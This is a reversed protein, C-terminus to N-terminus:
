IPMLAGGKACGSDQLPTSDFANHWYRRADRRHMLPIELERGPTFRLSLAGTEVTNFVRACVGLYKRVIEQEPLGFRNRYGSTVVAVEPSTAAVFEDTSSTLSGHHPVLVVSAKLRDRGRALLAAEARKEVDATLLLSREGATVKVVCSADNGQLKGAGSPHLVEFRVGDWTWAQGDRCREAGADHLMTGGSLRREIPFRHSVVEVGGAHDNDEHSVILADLRKIGRHQLYPVVVAEATSFGSRYSPGTDYLMAHHRTAVVVSLGQGVDLFTAEFAGDPLEGGASAALPLFLTAAAAKHRWRSALTMAVVGVVAPLYSWTPPHHFWQLFDTRGLWAGGRWMLDFLFDAGAVFWAGPLADPAASFSACVTALLVCPLILFSVLPVAALNALPAALAGHNFFLLSLPLLAPPLTTQLELWARKKPWPNLSFYFAIFGVAVFSLWFTATLTSLPDYAVVALLALPLAGTLSVRRKLLLGAVVCGLMILARQTPITFGALWAYACAALSAPLLAASAAPRLTLRLFLLSWLWRSIMFVFGFVLAVHLGSIAFLHGTGTAFLLRRHEPNMMGREGLALAIIAGLNSVPQAKLREYLRYRWTAPSRDSAREVLRFNRVYGSAGVRRSFLYREYDFGGPNMYGHPRKLRLTAELVDGPRLRPLSAGDRARYLSLRLRHPLAQGRADEVEADFRMSYGRDVPISAVRIMAELSRTELSAPLVEALQSGAALLTWLFGAAAASAFRLLVGRLCPLPLLCAVVASEWGPLDTFQHLAVNGLLFGAAFILM